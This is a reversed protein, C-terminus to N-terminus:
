KKELKQNIALSVMIQSNIRPEMSHLTHIFVPIVITNLKREIAMM